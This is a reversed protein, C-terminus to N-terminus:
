IENFSLKNITLFEYIFHLITHAPPFWQSDTEAYGLSLNFDKFM